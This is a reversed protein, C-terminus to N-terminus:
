NWVQEQKYTKHLHKTFLCCDGLGPKNKKSIYPGTGPQAVRDQAGGMTSFDDITGLNNVRFAM